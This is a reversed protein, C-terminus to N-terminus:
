FFPFWGKAEPIPPLETVPVDSQYLAFYLDSTQKYGQTSYIKGLQNLSERCGLLAAQRFAEIADPWTDKKKLYLHGLQTYSEKCGKQSSKKFYKIAESDDDNLVALNGLEHYAQIWDHDFKQKIWQEEEQPPPNLNIMHVFYKKTEHPSLFEKYCLGLHYYAMLLGKDVATKFYQLAKQHDNHSWCLVGLRFNAKVIDQDAAKQYYQYASTFDNKKEYLVGLNYNAVANGQQSAEKLCAIAKTEDNQLCSLGLHAFAVTERAVKEAWEFYSAAKVRRDSRHCICGLAIL